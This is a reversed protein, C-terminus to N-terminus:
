NHWPKPPISQWVKTGVGGKGHGEWVKARSQSGKLSTAPWDLSMSTEVSGTSAATKESSNGREGAEPNPRQTFPSHLSYAELSNTYDLGYHATGGVTSDLKSGPSMAFQNFHGRQDECISHCSRYINQVSLGNSVYVSIM